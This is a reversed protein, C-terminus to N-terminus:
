IMHYTYMNALFADDHADHWAVTDRAVIAQCRTKARKHAKSWLLEDGRKHALSYSCVTLPTPDLGESTQCRQRQHLYQNIQELADALASVRLKKGKGILLTQTDEDGDEDYLPGGRIDARYKPILEDFSAIAKDTYPNTSNSHRMASLAEDRMLGHVYLKEPCWTSRYKVNKKVRQIGREVWLGACNAVCGKAEEQKYLRCVLIHLNYTLLSKSLHQLCANM